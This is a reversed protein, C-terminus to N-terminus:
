RVEHWNKLEGWTVDQIAVERMDFRQAHACRALKRRLADAQPDLVLVRRDSRQDLWHVLLSLLAQDGFSHGCVVLVRADTLAQRFAHLLDNFPDWMYSGAKSLTGVLMVHPHNTIDYQQGHADSPLGSDVRAVRLGGNTGSPRVYSWRRSGHLKWIHVKESRHAYQGLDLWRIDGDSASLGDFYPIRHTEFYTELIEDHNLTFLRVRSVEGDAALDSFLRLYCLSGPPGGLFVSLADCIYDLPKLSQHAEKPFQPLLREVLPGLVPDRDEGAIERYIRRALDYIDEYNVQQQAVHYRNAIESRLLQLYHQIRKVPERDSAFLIGRDHPQMYVFEWGCKLCFGDNNLICDTLQATTPMGAPISVGAGLLFTVQM